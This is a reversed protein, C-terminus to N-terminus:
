LGPRLPPCRAARSISRMSKSSPLMGGEPHNPHPLPLFGAPFIDRTKIQEPPLKALQDWTVGAALKVRVGQQIPKSRSMTVGPAPNNALDYRAALLALQRKVIGPKAASMRATISAFSEHIDVPAYSSPPAKDQALLAVMGVALGVTLIKWRTKIQM